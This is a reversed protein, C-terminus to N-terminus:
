LLFLDAKMTRMDKFNMHRPKLEKTYMRKNICNYLITLIRDQERHFGQFHCYDRKNKM